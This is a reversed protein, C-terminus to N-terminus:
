NERAANPALRPGLRGNRPRRAAFRSRRRWRVISALKAFCSRNFTHTLLRADSQTFALAPSASVIEQFLALEPPAIGPPPKIKALHRSIPVVSLEAASKRPMTKLELALCQVPLLIADGGATRVM